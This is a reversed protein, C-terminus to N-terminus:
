NTKYGANYRLYTICDTITFVDSKYTTTNINSGYYQNPDNSKEVLVYGSISEVEVYFDGFPVYSFLYNGYLDTLVDQVFTGDSKYLKIIKNKLLIDGDSINYLANNGIGSEEWVFGSVFNQYENVFQDLTILNGIADTITVTYNGGSSIPLVHYTSDVVFSQGNSYSLTYPKVGGWFYSSLYLDPLCGYANLNGSVFSPRAVGFDVNELNEGDGIVLDVTEFTKGITNFFDNDKEPNGSQLLTASYSNAFTNLKYTGPQLGQFSYSGDASYFSTNGFCIMSGDARLLSFYNVGTVCTNEENVDRTGNDNLDVWIKGSISAEDFQDVIASRFSGEVFIEDEGNVPISDRLSKLLGSFTGSVIMETLNVSTINVEFQDCMFDLYEDESCSLSLGENQGGSYPLSINVREPNLIGTVISPVDMNFQLGTGAISAKIAIKNGNVLFAQPDPIVHFVDGDASFTVYEGINNCLVVLGLPNDTLAKNLVFPDSINLNMGDYFIVEPIISGCGAVITNIEGNSDPSVFQGNNILGYAHALPEGVCGKLSATLTTAYDTLSVTLNGLDTDASFPGIQMNILTVGCHYVLMTLPENDPVFGEFFGVNNTYGYAGYANNRKIYIPYNSIPTGSPTLLYGQIHIFTSPVDVNWFSFHSVDGVYFGNEKIALEEEMWKGTKEDLYWLPIENPADPALNNPIPFSIKATSGSAIQLKEGTVSVLEVAVMGYTEMIVSVGKNNIGELNAPANKALDESSPNYWHSFVYVLGTYINGSKDVISNAIFEVKAGGNMEVIGGEGSIIKKPNDKKTMQISVFVKEKPKNPYVIRFNEFYNEKTITMMSGAESLTVQRISFVGQADSQAMRSGIKVTGMEIPLGEDDLILGTLDTVVSVSPDHPTNIPEDEFKDKRCSMISITAIFFFVILKNFQM